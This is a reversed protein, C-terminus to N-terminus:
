FLVVAQPFAKPAAGCNETVVEFETLALLKVGGTATPAAVADVLGQGESRQRSLKFGTRERRLYNAIVPFVTACGIIEM